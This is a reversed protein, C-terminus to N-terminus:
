VRWSNRYKEAPVFLLTIGQKLNRVV